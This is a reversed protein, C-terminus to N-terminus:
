VIESSLTKMEDDVRTRLAREMEREAKREM